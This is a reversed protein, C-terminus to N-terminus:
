KQEEKKISSYLYNIRNDLINKIEKLEELLNKFSRETIAKRLENIKPGIESDESFERIFVQLEREIWSYLTKEKRSDVHLICKEISTRALILTQMDYFKKNISM